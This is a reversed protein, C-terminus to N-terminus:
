EQHLKRAMTEAAERDSDSQLLMIYRSEAVEALLEARYQSRRLRQILVIFVLTILVYAGATLVDERELAGYQGYPPLFFFVAVPFAVVASSLAPALGFRYHVLLTGLTFALLPFRGDLMPQLSLRIMFALLTIVVTWLWREPGSPAWSKVNHIKMRQLM